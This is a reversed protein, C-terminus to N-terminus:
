EQEDPVPLNPCTPRYTEDGLHWRWEELTLNRPLHACAETILDEPRWLWVRATGDLGGSVVWREDPSFTVAVADSGHRMRAVERGTTTEWVRVTRSDCRIVEGTYASKTATDCGVSIAWSGDPSFDVHNVSVSHTMTMVEKGTEAEWVRAVGDSGGATAFTVKRGSSPDVCHPVSYVMLM